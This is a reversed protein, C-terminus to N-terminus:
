RVAEIRVHAAETFMSKFGAAYHHMLELKSFDEKQIDAMLTNYLNLVEESAFRMM